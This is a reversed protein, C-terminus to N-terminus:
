ELIVWGLWATPYSAARTIGCIGVGKGSARKFRIYGQEGWSVGWSNKVIWYPSPSSGYGVALVGHDLQTGCKGSFIGGKYFMIEDAEIAVSTPQQTVAAALADNDDVTV